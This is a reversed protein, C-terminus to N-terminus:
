APDTAREASAKVYSLCRRRAQRDGIRRFAKLLENCEEITALREDSGGDVQTFAEVSVALAEALQVLIHPVDSM